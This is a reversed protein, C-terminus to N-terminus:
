VITMGLLAEQMRAFLNWFLQPRYENAKSAVDGVGKGIRAGGVGGLAEQFQMGNVLALAEGALGTKTFYILSNLYNIIKVLYPTLATLSNLHNDM